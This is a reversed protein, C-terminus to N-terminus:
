TKEVEVVLYGSKTHNISESGTKTYYTLIMDSKFKSNPIMDACDINFRKTAGQSISTQFATGGNTNDCDTVNLTVGKMVQGIGNNVLISINDNEGDGDATETDNTRSNFDMCTLGPGLECKEPLFRNPDLLGFFALAAIVILVVLLAWGYTMLFEMAAQAKKRQFM